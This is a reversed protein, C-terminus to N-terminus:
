RKITFGFLSIGSRGENARSKGKVPSGSATPAGVKTASAAELIIEMAEAIVLLKAPPVNGLLSRLAAQGSAWLQSAMEQGKGSLRCLVVRRDQPDSERRVLGREVLRDVVGTTTAGSVRMKSALMSM